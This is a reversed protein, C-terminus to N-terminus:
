LEEGGERKAIQDAKLQLVTWDAGALAVLLEHVLEATEENEFEIVTADSESKFEKGRKRWEQWTVTLSRPLLRFTFASETFLWLKEGVM